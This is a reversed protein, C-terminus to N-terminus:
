RLKLVQGLRAGQNYPMENLNYLKELRIAYLQAIIYMSDGNRVIHTTNGRAAKAKKKQIYVQTGPALQVEPNIENYARISKESLEFEDAISAYSDGPKGVVFKVHNNRYVEHGSVADLKGMSGKNKTVTNEPENKTVSKNKKHHVDKMLDYQHLEYNEIISILKYAYSSDTAYGAKKLGHAWSEYDTPSLEFLFAYRPKQKLFLSHDEYSELADKYKRFCEGKADDDHYTTEGTWNHCKIGFHNNSNKVFESQGAGSELLGQALTISAPIGHETQQIVAIKYYNEIYKIYAQSKNQASINGIVAMGSLCIIFFTRILKM